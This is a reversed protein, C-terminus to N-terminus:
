FASVGDPGKLNFTVGLAYSTPTASATGGFTLYGDDYTVGANAATWAMSAINYTIGGNVTWYDAVPM